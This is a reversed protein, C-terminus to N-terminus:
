SSILEDRCIAFPLSLHFVEDREISISSPSGTNDIFRALSLHDVICVKSLLSALSYYKSWRLVKGEAEIMWYIHVPAVSDGEANVINTFRVLWVM